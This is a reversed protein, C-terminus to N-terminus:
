VKDLVVELLSGSVSYRRDEQGEQLVACGHLGLGWPGDAGQSIFMPFTLM